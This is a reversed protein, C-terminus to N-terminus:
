LPAPRTPTSLMAAAAKAPETIAEVYASRARGEVKVAEGAKSLGSQGCQLGAEGGEAGLGGM